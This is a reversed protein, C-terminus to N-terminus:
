KGCTRWQGRTCGIERKQQRKKPWKIGKNFTDRYCPFQSKSNKQDHAKSITLHYDVSFLSNLLHLSTIMIENLVHTHPYTHWIYTSPIIFAVPMITHSLWTGICYWILIMNNDVNAYVSSPFHIFTWHDLHTTFLTVPFLTCM